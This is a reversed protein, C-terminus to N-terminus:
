VNYALQLQEALEENNLNELMVPRKFSKRRQVPMIIRSNQISELLAQNFEDVIKSRNNEIYRM